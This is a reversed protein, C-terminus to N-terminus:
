RHLTLTVSARGRFAPIPPAAKCVRVTVSRVEEWRNLVCRAIAATLSELLNRPKGFEEQVLSYLDAYSLTDEISDSECGNVPALSLFVDLEYEAGVTREQPMVGHYGYLRVGELSITMEDNVSM